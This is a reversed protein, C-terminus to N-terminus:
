YLEEFFSAQTEDNFSVNIEEKITKKGKAACLTMTGSSNFGYYTRSYRSHKIPKGHRDNRQRRTTMETDLSLESEILVKDSLKHKERFAIVESTIDHEVDFTYDKMEDGCCESVLAVRVTGVIQESDVDVELDDAEPEFSDDYSAFNGCQQCRAM